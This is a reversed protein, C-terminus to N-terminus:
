AYDPLSAQVYDDYAERSDDEGDARRNEAWDEYRREEEFAERDAEYSAYFAAETEMQYQYMAEDHEAMIIDYDGYM